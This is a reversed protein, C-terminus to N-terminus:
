KDDESDTSKSKKTNEPKTKSLIFKITTSYRFDKYADCVGQVLNKIGATGATDQPSSANSDEVWKPLNNKNVIKIAAAFLSHANNEEYSDDDMGDLFHDKLISVIEDKVSQPCTQYLKGTTAKLFKNEAGYIYQLANLEKNKDQDYYYTALQRIDGVGDAFIDLVDEEAECFYYRCYIDFDSVSKQSGWKMDRAKYLIDVGADDMGKFEDTNYPIFKMSPSSGLCMYVVFYERLKTDPIMNYAHTLMFDHLNYGVSDLASIISQLGETHYVGRKSEQEIWEELDKRLSDPSVKLERKTGLPRNNTYNWIM